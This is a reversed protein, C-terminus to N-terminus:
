ANQGNKKRVNVREQRERKEIKRDSERDVMEWGQVQEERNWDEEREGEWEKGGV